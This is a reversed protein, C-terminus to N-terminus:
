RLKRNFFKHILSVKNLHTIASFFFAYHDTKIIGM